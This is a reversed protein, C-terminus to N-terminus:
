RHGIRDGQYEIDRFETITLGVTSYMFFNGLSVRYVISENQTYVHMNPKTMELLSINILMFVLKKGKVEIFPKYIIRCIRNARIKNMQIGIFLKRTTLTNSFRIFRVKHMTRHKTNVIVIRNYWSYLFLFNEVVPPLMDCIAIAQSMIFTM